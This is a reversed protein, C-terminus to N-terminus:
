SHLEMPWIRIREVEVEFEEDDERNLCGLSFAVSEAVETHSLGDLGEAEIEIIFKHTAM